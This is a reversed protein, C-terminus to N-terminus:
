SAQQIKVQRAAAHMYVLVICSCIGALYPRATRGTDRAKVRSKPKDVSHLGTVGTTPITTAVLVDVAFLSVLHRCGESYMHQKSQASQVKSTDSREKQTESSQASM